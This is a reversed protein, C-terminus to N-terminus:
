AAMREKLAAQVAVVIDELYAEEHKLQKALLMGRWGRILCNAVYSASVSLLFEALTHPDERWGMAGFYATWARSYCSLVLTGRGVGHDRMIVTIPDLEGLGPRRMAGIIVLGEPIDQTVIM